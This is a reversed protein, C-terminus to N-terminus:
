PVTLYRGVGANPERSRLLRLSGNPALTLEDVPVTDKDFENGSTTKVISSVSVKSDIRKVIIEGFQLGEKANPLNITIEAGDDAGEADLLFTDEGNTLNYTFPGPGTPAVYGDDNTTSYNSRSLGTPGSIIVIEPPAARFGPLAGAILKVVGGNGTVSYPFCNASDSGGNVELVAGNNLEVVSDGDTSVATVRYFRASASGGPPPAANLVVKAHILYCDGLALAEVADGQIRGVLRCANFCQMRCGGLFASYSDYAEVRTDDLVFQLDASQPDCDFGRGSTVRVLSQRVQITGGTVDGDVQFASVAGTSFRVGSISANPVTAGAVWGDAGRILAPGSFSVAPTDLPGPSPPIQLSAYGSGAAAALHMGPKLTFGPYMGNLIIFDANMPEGIAAFDTEAQIRAADVNPFTGSVAMPTAIGPTTTDEAVIYLLKAGRGGSGGPEPRWYYVTPSSDTPTLDYYTDESRVYARAGAMVGAGNAPPLQAFTERAIWPAKDNFFTRDTPYAM